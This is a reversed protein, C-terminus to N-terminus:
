GGRLKSLLGAYETPDFRLIGALMELQRDDPQSTGKEWSHILATDIGMKTALHCATM